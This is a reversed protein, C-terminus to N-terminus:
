FLKIEAQIKQLIRRHEGPVAAQGTFWPYLDTDNEEMFAELEDLDDADLEALKHDVFTGLILDMEKTGRHWARMKIRKLRHEHTEM